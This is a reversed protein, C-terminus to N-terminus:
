VLLERIKITLDEIEGTLEFQIGPDCEAMSTEDEDKDWANIGNKLQFEKEDIADLLDRIQNTPIM